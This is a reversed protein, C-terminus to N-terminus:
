VSQDYFWQFYFNGRSSSDDVIFYDNQSDEFFEKTWSTLQSDPDTFDAFSGYTDSTRKTRSYLFYPSYSYKTFDDLITGSLDNFTYKMPNLNMYCHGDASKILAQTGDFQIQGKGAEGIFGTGDTKFGFRQAGKAFGYLGPVDLSSDGKTQWDGMIVGTFRNQSDKTGASMMTALVAGNEEDLTLSNDWSNILSSSYVNQTFPIAQRIWVETESEDTKPTMIASLYMYCQSEM